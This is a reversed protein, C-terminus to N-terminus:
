DASIPETLEFIDITQTAGSTFNINSLNLDAGSTSVNGQIRIATASDDVDHDNTLVLRFYGATGTVIAPKSWVGSEKSIVGALPAALHLADNRTNTVIHTLTPPTDGTAVVTISEGPFKSMILVFHLHAISVAPITLSANILDALAQAIVDHTEPGAGNVRTFATGNITCGNSQGITVNTVELAEVMAVGIEDHTVTGSALTIEVLSTGTAPLDATAPAAGSYIKLIADSFAKRLCGGGLLYQRLGTSLKLAMIKEEKTFYFLRYLCGSM